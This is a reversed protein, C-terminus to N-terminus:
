AEVRSTGHSVSCGDRGPSTRPPQEAYSCTVDPATYLGIDAPRPPKVAVLSAAMEAVLNRETDLQHQTVPGVGDRLALHVREIRWDARYGYDAKWYHPQGFYGFSAPFYARVHTPDTWAGDSAGHPMKLVCRAGPQAVRYLEAMFALPDSLHEILHEAVIVEFADDRFPLALADAQIAGPHPYCDVNVM